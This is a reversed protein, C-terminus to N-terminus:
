RSIDEALRVVHPHPNREAINKKITIRQKAM